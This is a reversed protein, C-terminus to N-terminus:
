AKQLWNAYSQFMNVLDANEKLLEILNTLSEKIEASDSSKIESHLADYTEHLIATYKQPKLIEPNEMVPKIAEKIQHDVSHIKNSSRDQPSIVYDNNILISSNVQHPVIAKNEIFNYIESDVSHLRTINKSMILVM